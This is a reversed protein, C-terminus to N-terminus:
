FKLYIYIYIDWDSNKDNQYLSCESLFHAPSWSVNQREKGSPFLIESINKNIMATLSPTGTYQDWIPLLSWGSPLYISSGTFSSCSSSSLGPLLRCTERPRPYPLLSFVQFLHKVGLHTHHFLM